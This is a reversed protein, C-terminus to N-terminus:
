STSTARRNAAARTRCTARADRNVHTVVGLRMGASLRFRTSMMMEVSVQVACRSSIISKEYATSRRSRAAAPGFSEVMARSASRRPCSADHRGAARDVVTPDPVAEASSGLDHEVRRDCGRRRQARLITARVREHEVVRKRSPTAAFSAFRFIVVCFNRATGHPIPIRFPSASMFLQTLAASGAMVLVPRTRRSGAPSSGARKRSTTGSSRASASSSPPRVRPAPHGLVLARALERKLLHGGNARPWREENRM